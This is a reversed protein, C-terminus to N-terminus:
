VVSKRDPSLDIVVGAAALVGLLNKGWEWLANWDIQPM